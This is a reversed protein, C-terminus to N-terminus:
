AKMAQELVIVAQELEAHEKRAAELKQSNAEQVHVPVKTAYDAAAIKVNYQDITKQASAVQSKKRTLEQSLDLGKVETFILCADNVVDRVSGTPEPDGDELVVVEGM